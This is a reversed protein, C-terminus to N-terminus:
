KADAQAQTPFGLASRAVQVAIAVPEPYASMESIEDCEFADYLGHLAVSLTLIKREAAMRSEVNMQAIARVTELETELASIRESVGSLKLANDILDQMTLQNSM